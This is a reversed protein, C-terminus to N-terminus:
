IDQKIINLQKTFLFADKNKCRRKLNCNLCALVINDTNHGLDNNIRDVTWQKIDRVNEYLIHMECNCYYCKIQTEILKNLIYNLNIIKEKNLINKNIDQQKYGNIKKEIQKIMITLANKDEENNLNTNNILILQKNYIFYENSLNLKEIEIRKKDKIKEQTLKKIQYRNTQGIINIQKKENNNQIDQIDQINKINKIKIINEMNPNYFIIKFYLFRM